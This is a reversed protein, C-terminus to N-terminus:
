REALEVAAALSLPEAPLENAALPLGVVMLCLMLLVPKFSNV